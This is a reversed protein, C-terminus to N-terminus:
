KEEFQKPLEKKMKDKEAVEDLDPVVLNDGPSLGSGVQLNKPISADGQFHQLKISVSPRRAHPEIQIQAHPPMFGPPFLPEDNNGEEDCIVPSKGKDAGKILQTLKIMLDDQSEKMKQVMDKQIKEVQEKMQAQLQDQMEKQLRELKEMRQDM